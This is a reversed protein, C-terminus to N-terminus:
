VSKNVEYFEDSSVSNSILVLNPVSTPIWSWSTWRSSTPTKLSTSAAWRTSATKAWLCRSWGSAEVFQILTTFLAMSPQFLSLNNLIIDSCVGHIGHFDEPNSDAEPTEQSFALYTWSHVRVGALCCLHLGWSKQCCEYKWNTYLIVYNHHNTESNVFQQTNKWQVCVQGVKRDVCNWKGGIEFVVPFLSHIMMKMHLLM